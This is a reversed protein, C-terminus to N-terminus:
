NGSGEERRKEEGPDQELKEEKVMADDDYEFYQIDSTGFIRTLFEIAIGNAGTCM